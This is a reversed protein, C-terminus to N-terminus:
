VGLWYMIFIVTDNMMLYNYPFLKWMAPGKYPSDVPWRHNWMVFPGNIRVATAKMHVTNM